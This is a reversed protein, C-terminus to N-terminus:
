LRKGELRKLTRVYEQAEEYTNYLRFFSNEDEEISSLQPQGWELSVEKIAFWRGNLMFTSIVKDKTYKNYNDIIFVTGHNIGDEM